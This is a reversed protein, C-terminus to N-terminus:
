RFTKDCFGCPLCIGEIHNAEIHDRLLTTNKSNAEKGCIKCVYLIFGNRQTLEILSKVKINLGELGGYFLEKQLVLTTDNKSEEKLDDFKSLKNECKLKAVTQMLNQDKVLNHFQKSMDPEVNEELKEYHPQDGQERNDRVLGKMKFDEAITLFTDLDEHNITTEGFYMFNVIAVLDNSKMGRLYILPHPHKNRKLFNEFFASSAALIVKHAEVQEGDECALTVDAFATDKRMVGFSTIINEQFANWKLCFKEAASM